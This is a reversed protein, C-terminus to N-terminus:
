GGPRNVGVGRGKGQRGERNANMVATQGPGGLSTKIEQRKAVLPPDGREVYPCECRIRHLRPASLLGTLIGLFGVIKNQKYLNSLTTQFVDGGRAM